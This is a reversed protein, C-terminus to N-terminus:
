DAPASIWGRKALETIVSDAVLHSVEQTYHHAHFASEVPQTGLHELLTEGFNYPSVGAGELAEILSQYLWNGTERYHSLDASGPFVVLMPQQGRRKAERDFSLMIEATLRVGQLPHDNDYFPAFGPLGALQARLEWHGFNRLLSVVHPFRHRVAGARGGPAFNEHPLILQPSDVALFRRYEDQDLTPIPVLELRGEDDVVFRPKFAWDRSRTRFDRYRTLNRIIDSSMHGLIVIRAQDSENNLYRLFSQDTGYGGVGYNKVTAGLRRQMRCGWHDTDGGIWDATFSDGYLSVLWEADAPLDVGKCWRAGDEAYNEGFEKQRPWGLVPDRVDMYEAMSISRPGPKPDAYMVWKSQLLKGAPWAFLEALVLLFLLYGVVFLRKARRSRPARKSGKAAAPQPDGKM